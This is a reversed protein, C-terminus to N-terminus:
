RETVQTPLSMPSLMMAKLRTSLQQRIASVVLLRTSPSHQRVRQGLMTARVQLTLTTSGSKVTVAPKKETGDYTYSTTAPTVTLAGTNASITFQKTISGSYNGKGAVIVDYTGAASGGANNLTYDTGEKLAISGDTVTVTPKQVSGNYSFATASLTVM